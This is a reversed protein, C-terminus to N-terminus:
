HFWARFGFSTFRMIVHDSLWCAFVGIGLFGLLDPIIPTHCLSLKYRPVLVIPFPFGGVLLYQNAFLFYLSSAVFDTTRQYTTKLEKSFWSLSIIEGVCLLHPFFFNISRFIIYGQM